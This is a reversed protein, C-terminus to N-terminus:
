AVFEVEGHDIVVQGADDATSVRGEVPLPRHLALSQEAHVLMGWGFDGLPARPAGRQVVIVGFTPLVRQTVDKSNETTLELERLPDAQGAGVGLAYLLADTSSWSTESPGFSRSVADLNLPM